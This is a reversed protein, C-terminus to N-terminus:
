EGTVEQADFWRWYTADLNRWFEPTTGFARALGAAIETDVGLMRWGMLHAIVLPPLASERALDRHNWGRAKMEDSIHVQVPFVEAPIRESVQM